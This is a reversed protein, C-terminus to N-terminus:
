DSLPGVLQLRPERGLDFAVANHDFLRALKSRELGSNRGAIGKAGLHRDTRLKQDPLLPPRIRRKKFCPAKWANSRIM